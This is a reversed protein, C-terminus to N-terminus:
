MSLHIVMVMVMGDEVSDISIIGGTGDIGDAAGTGDRIGSVVM